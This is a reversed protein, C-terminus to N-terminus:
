GGGGPPKVGLSKNVDANSRQSANIIENWLDDGKHKDSYKAVTQEWTLNPRTADLVAAAERDAMAERAATRFSNRLSWAQKAQQDLPASRDVLEPIKAEQALYWERVDKNSMSGRPPLPVEKGNPAKLVRGQAASGASKTEAAKETKAAKEPAKAKTEGGSKSPRRAAKEEVSRRTPKRVARTAGADGESGRAFRRLIAILAVAGIEVVAEALHDAARDLDAPVQADVIATFCDYLNGAAHIAVMGGAAFALALIFADAAWGFPTLHAAAALGAIGVMLAISEPTLLSLLMEKAEGPVRDAARRIVEAVREEMSWDAVANRKQDDQPAAFPPSSPASAKALMHPASSSAVAAQALPRAAASPPPVPAQQRSLEPPPPAPQQHWNRRLVAVQLRRDRLAAEVIGAVQMDTSRSMPSTPLNQALYLRVKRLNAANTLARRTLAAAREGDRIAAPLHALAGFRALLLVDEGYHLDVIRERM